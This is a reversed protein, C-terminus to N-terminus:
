IQLGPDTEDGIHIKRGCKDAKYGHVTKENWFLVNKLQM